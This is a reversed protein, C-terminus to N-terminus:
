DPNIVELPRYCVALGGVNYQLGDASPMNRGYSGLKHQEFQQKGWQLLIRLVDRVLDFHRQQM